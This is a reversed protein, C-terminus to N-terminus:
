AFPDQGPQLKKDQVTLQITAWASGHVNLQTSVDGNFTLVVAEGDSVFTGVVKKKGEPLDTVELKTLEVTM